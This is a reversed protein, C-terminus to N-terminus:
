VRAARGPEPLKPRLMWASWIAAAACGMAALALLGPPLTGLGAFWRAWLASAGFSEFAIVEILMVGIVILFPLGDRRRALYMALAVLASVAEGAHFQPPVAIPLRAVVPPLVLLVTALMYAAHLGMRRRNVLAARVMAILTVSSILDHLGLRAGFVGYFPHGGAFKTSMSHFVLAAGAAFLPVAVLVARGALRHLAFRRAHASWSQAIVLLLWFSATLGHAHFAFPASRVTGFYGPWFAAGVAPALLLLLIWHAHRYPMHTDGWIPRCSSLRVGSYGSPRM